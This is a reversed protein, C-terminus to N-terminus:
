FTRGSSIEQAIKEAVRRAHEATLHTSTKDFDEDPDKVLFTLDELPIGGKLLRKRFVGVEKRYTNQSLTGLHVVHFGAGWRKEVCAKMREVIRATLEIWSSKVKEPPRSRKLHDLFSHQFFLITFKGPIKKEKKEPGRELLLGSPSLRYYMQRPSIRERWSRSEPHRFFHEPIFFYIVERIDDSDKLQPWPDRGEMAHLIQSPGYAPVAANVVKCPLLAQLRSAITDEDELAFGFVMSDGFLVLMSGKKQGLVRRYGSADISYHRSWEEKGPYFTSSHRVKQHPKLGYGLYRMGQMELPVGDPWHDAIFYTSFLLGKQCSLFYLEVLFWLFFCKMVILTMYFIKPSKKSCGSVILRALILALFVFVPLLAVVFLERRLLITIALFFFFLMTKEIKLWFSSLGALLMLIVLFGDLFFCEKRLLLFFAYLFSLLFGLFKERRNLFIM